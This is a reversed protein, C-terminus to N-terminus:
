PMMPESSCGRHPLCLRRAVAYKEDELEIKREEPLRMSSLQLRLTDDPLAAPQASRIPLWRHSRDVLLTPPARARQLM